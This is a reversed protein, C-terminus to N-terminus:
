AEIPDLRRQTGHSSGARQDAYHDSEPALCSETQLRSRLSSRPPRVPLSSPPSPPIFPTLLPGLLRPFRLWGERDISCSRM